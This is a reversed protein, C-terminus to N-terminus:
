ARSTATPSSSAPVKNCPDAACGWQARGKDPPMRRPRIGPELMRNLAGAALAVQSAQCGDTRSRQGAGIARHPHLRPRRARCRAPDRRCSSWRRQIVSLWLATFTTGTSPGMPRSPPSRVRSRISCPGVQAGNDIEPGTLETTLVAVLRRGSPRAGRLDRRRRIEHLHIDSSM